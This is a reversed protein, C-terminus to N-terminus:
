TDGVALERRDAPAPTEISLTGELVFYWDTVASRFHWPIVEGSVLTFLRAQVDSGVAVPEIAKVTYGPGQAMAHM